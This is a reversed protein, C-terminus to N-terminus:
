QHCGVECFEEVLENGIGGELSAETLLEHLMESQGLKMRGIGAFHHIEVANRVLVDINLAGRM